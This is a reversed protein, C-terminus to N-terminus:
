KAAPRAKDVMEIIKKTLDYKDEGYVLGSRRAEFVFDLKEKKALEKVVEFVKEVLPKMLEEGLNQMKQQSEMIFRQGEEQKQRLEDIKKKRAEEGMISRKKQFDERLKRFEEQKATIQAKLKEEEAKLKAQVDQGWKSERLVRDLDFFGIKVDARVQGVMLCVFFASLFFRIMVSCWREVM